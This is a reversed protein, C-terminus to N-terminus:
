GSLNGQSRSFLITIAFSWLSIASSLDRRPLEEEDAGLVVDAAELDLDLALLAAGDAAVTVLRTQM